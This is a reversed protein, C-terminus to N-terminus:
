QAPSGALEYETPDKIGAMRFGHIRARCTPCTGCHREGGAYCSWTDKWPVGLRTGLAIIEHKRLWQLPTILQTTFYTGVYIANAMAGTFEPTCDPYAWGLADEAHAGFYIAVSDRMQELPQGQSIVWKQAHAAVISLMTGNRYPVYTPSIGKIESYSISPINIKPNTLMVQSGTLIDPLDLVTHTMGGTQPYIDRAIKNAYEIEKRHRQGYNISILEVDDTQCVALYACTSSDIGGSCLIFAKKM